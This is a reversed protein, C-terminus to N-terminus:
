SIFFQRTCFEFQILDNSIFVTCFCSFQYVAPYRCISSMFTWEDVANGDKDLIQLNAGVVEKGLVDEKSIVLKGEEADFMTTNGTITGDKEITFTIEEAIQYGKPARTEVMAYKGGAILKKGSSTDKDIPSRGTFRMSYTKSFTNISEM